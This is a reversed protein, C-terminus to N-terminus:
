GILHLQNCKPITFHIIGCFMYIEYSVKSYIWFRKNFDDSLVFRDCLGDSSIQLKDQFLLNRVLIYRPIMKKQWRFNHQRNRLCDVIEFHRIDLIIMSNSSTQCNLLLSLWKAAISFPHRKPSIRRNCESDFEAINTRTLKVVLCVCRNTM